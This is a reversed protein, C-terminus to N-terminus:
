GTLRTSRWRTTASWSRTREPGPTPAPGAEVAALKAPLWVAANVPSAPAPPQGEATRRADPTAALPQDLADTTGNSM